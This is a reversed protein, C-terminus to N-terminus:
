INHGNGSITDMEQSSLEFDFISINELLKEKRVTKPFVINGQQIHWRLIIQYVTKNYKEAIKLVGPLLSLNYNGQGLPGWAQTAIGLSNQFERLETQQDFPDIRIQNVAPIITGNDVINKIQSINFNSIGISKVLGSDYFSELTLWSELYLDEPFHILYLDIYETQLKELSKQFDYKTQRSSFSDGWFKTTIFIDERPIGGKLVARGVGVENGYASATDIHRYGIELADLVVNECVNNSIDFVGLGIQPILNGSNLMLSNKNKM